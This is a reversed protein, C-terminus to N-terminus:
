VLEVVEIRWDEASLFDIAPPLRETSLTLHYTRPGLLMSAEHISLHLPLMFLAKVRLHAITPNVKVRRKRSNKSSWASRSCAEPKASSCMCLETMSTRTSSTRSGPVFIVSQQQLLPLSKVKSTDWSLFDLQLM